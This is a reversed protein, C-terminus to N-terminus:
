ASRTQGTGNGDVRDLSADRGQGSVSDGWGNPPVEVIATERHRMQTRWSQAYRGDQALLEEHTGSEVIRGGDMVHIIDAYRATTFRHTIILATKGQALRQFRALWDAEAWPDMASTPEDLIIVPARRLYARALAVRQWEGVSLDSGDVFWKGLLTDYGQPLREIPDDASAAHAATEIEERSVPRRLDGLEINEAATANYEVPQQFLVTIQRHLEALSFDRLDVGNLSIRGEDPDYFRCLLKALTSKGAGNMGVIATTRGGALTLSFNHLATRMSGPYRFTVGELRFGYPEARPVALPAPPDDVTPELALFAFLDSLFLSNTYIEGMNDLLTRVLRQGQSFAQYFLAVDGLTALGRMAQRIMWLMAGATVLLATAGAALEGLTQRRALDAREHRLQARLKGYRDRFHDGLDFLRIEAANERGTLLWFYYDARRERETTRMRWRHLALRQELVVYFAPLSSLILAVPLWWGYPILVLAMAALTLGNQLLSGLNELLATPRQLAEYRARHLQDFYAPSDYFAIDVRTSQSQVLDAIYDRVAEAQVTRVYSLAARLVEGTVLVAAFALVLVIVPQLTAWVVAGRANEGVVAVLQDVLARTLYVTAVPLLGQIVLITIWAVTWGRAAQMVLNLARVLYPGQRLGGRIKKQLLTLSDSM